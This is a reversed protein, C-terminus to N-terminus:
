LNVLDALFDFVPAVVKELWFIFVFAIVPVGIMLFVGVAFICALVEM